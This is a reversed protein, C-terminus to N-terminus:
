KFGTVGLGTNGAPVRGFAILEPELRTTTTSTILPFENGGDPTDSLGFNTPLRREGEHVHDPLVDIRGDRWWPYIKTIDSDFLERRAGDMEQLRKNSLGSLEPNPM